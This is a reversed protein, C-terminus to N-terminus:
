GQAEREQGAAQAAEQEMAKQELAVLQLRVVDLALRANVPPLGSDRVLTTVANLFQNTKTNLM